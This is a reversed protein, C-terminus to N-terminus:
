HFLLMWSVWIQVFHVLQDEILNFSGKNAKENDVMAHIVTNFGVLASFLWGAENWGSTMGMYGLLPLCVLFSWMFSHEVLAIMWDNKYQAQPCNEKWWKKQKFQALIGQLNYDAILHLFLMSFLILYAM